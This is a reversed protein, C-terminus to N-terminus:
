LNHSAPKLRILNIRRITQLLVDELIAQDPEADLEPETMNSIDVHLLDQLLRATELESDDVGSSPKDSGIVNDQDKTLGTSELM